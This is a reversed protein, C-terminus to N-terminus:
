FLPPSLFDEHIECRIQHPLLSGRKYSTHTLYGNCSQLPRIIRGLYAPHDPGGSQGPSSSWKSVGSPGGWRRLNRQSPHPRINSVDPGELNAQPAFDDTSPQINGKTRPASSIFKRGGQNKASYAEPSRIIRGSHAPHDPTKKRSKSSSEGEMAKKVWECIDKAWNYFWTWPVYSCINM